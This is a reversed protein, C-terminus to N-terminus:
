GTSKDGLLHFDEIGEIGASGDLLASM